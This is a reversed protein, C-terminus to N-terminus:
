MRKHSSFAILPLTTTLPEESETLLGNLLTDELKVQSDGDAKSGEKALMEDASKTTGDKTVALMHVLSINEELQRSIVKSLEDPFLDTLAALSGAEINTIGIVEPLDGQDVPLPKNAVVDSLSFKLEADAENGSEIFDRIDPFNVGAIKGKLWRRGGNLEVSFAIEEGMLRGYIEALRKGVATDRVNPPLNVGNALLNGCVLSALWAACMFCLWRM